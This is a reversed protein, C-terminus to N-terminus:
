PSYKFKCYFGNKGSNNWEIGYDNYRHKSSRAITLDFGPVPTFPVNLLLSEKNKDSGEIAEIQLELTDKLKLWRRKGDVSFEIPVSKVGLMEGILNSAAAFFGGAQGSYIKIIADKQEQTGREDIYLAAKWKPGTVMNGPSNFMAVVNLNDLTTNDDYVGKQIHWACTVYCSGEDPDQFFSCPCVIDCNCGEFYDGELKWSPSSSKRAMDNTDSTKSNDTAVTTSM